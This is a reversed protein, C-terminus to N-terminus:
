ALEIWLIGSALTPVTLGDWHAHINELIDAEVYNAGSAVSNWIPAGAATQVVATHGATTAGVWRIGKIRLRTGAAIIAGAGATDVKMPNKTLDNAM